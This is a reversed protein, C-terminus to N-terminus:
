TFTGKKNYTKRTCLLIHDRLTANLLVGGLMSKHDDARVRTWTLKIQSTIKFDNGVQLRMHEFCTAGKGLDGSYLFM